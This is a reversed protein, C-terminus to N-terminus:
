LEVISLEGSQIVLRSNTPIQRSATLPGFYLLNGGTESDFLGFYVILGWPSLAEGFDIVGSNQTIGTNSELLTIRKRSYDVASVEVGGGIKTPPALFLGVYTPDKRLFTEIVRNSLFDTKPM